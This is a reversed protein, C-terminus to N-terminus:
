LSFVVFLSILINISKKVSVIEFITPEDIIREWIIAKDQERLTRSQM